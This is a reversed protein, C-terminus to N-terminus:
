RRVGWVVVREVDDADFAVGAVYDRGFEFPAFRRPLTVEARWTGDPAFVSWTQPTTPALPAGPGPLSFGPDFPGVWLEGDPGFALRSFAPATSAFPFAQVATTMQQRVAPPADRNADLYAQRVLAREEERIARPAIDRSIRVRARGTPGYCTLVLRDSYGACASSDSAAVVGEAELLQRAPTGNIPSTRYGPMTVLPLLSDGAADAVTLTYFIIQREREAMPAGDTVLVYSTAGAGLGIRQPTRSGARRAPRLSRVLRGSPEFVHARSDGDVGVLTDGRRLLRTIRRFEGPGSGARGLARVFREDRSFVRIENSAGNAVAVGGDALRVVGRVAAFESAPDDTVDLELLPQASLSWTARPKAKRSYTALRVGASDRTVQALGVSSWSALAYLTVALLLRLSM